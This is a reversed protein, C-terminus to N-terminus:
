LISGCQQHRQCPLIPTVPFPVSLFLYINLLGGSRPKRTREENQKDTTLQALGFYHFCPPHESSVNNGTFCPHESFVGNASPVKRRIFDFIGYAPCVAHPRLPGATHKRVAM